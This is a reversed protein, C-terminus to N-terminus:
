AQQGRSRAPRVRERLWSWVEVGKGLSFAIGFVGLDPNMPIRNLRLLDPDRRRAWYFDDLAYTVNAGEPASARRTAGTGRVYDAM